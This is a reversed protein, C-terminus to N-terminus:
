CPKPGCRSPAVANLHRLASEEGERVDIAVLSYHKGLDDREDEEEERKWRCRVNMEITMVVPVVVCLAFLSVLFLV